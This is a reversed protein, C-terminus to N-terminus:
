PQTDGPFSIDTLDTSKIVEIHWKVPAVGAFQWVADKATECAEEPTGGVQRVLVRTRSGPLRLAVTHLKTEISRM